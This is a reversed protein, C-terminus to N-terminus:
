TAARAKRHGGKRRMQMQSGNAGNFLKVTQRLKSLQRPIGLKSPSSGKLEQNSTYEEHEAGAVESVSCHEAEDELSHVSHDWSGALGHYCVHNNEM